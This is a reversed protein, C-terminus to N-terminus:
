INPFPSFLVLTKSYIGIQRFAFTATDDASYSRKPVPTLKVSALSELFKKNEGLPEQQRQKM